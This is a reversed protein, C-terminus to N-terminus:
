GLLPAQRNASMAACPMAEATRCMAWAGRRDVAIWGYVRQRALADRYIRESAEVVSLGERVLTELRVALGDDIIHEGIGTCSIAAYASAYNGAVTASDSIREPGNFRGGGTSTAAALRGEADLVM